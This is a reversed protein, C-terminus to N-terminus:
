GPDTEGLSLHEMATTAGAASRSLPCPSLSISPRKRGSHITSQVLVIRTMFLGGAAPAKGANRFMKAAATVTIPRETVTSGHSYIELGSLFLM